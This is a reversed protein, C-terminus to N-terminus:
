EENNITNIAYETWKIENKLAWIGNEAILAYIKQKKNINKGQIISLENELFKLRSIMIEKYHILNEVINENDINISFFLQVLFQNRHNPLEIKSNLWIELDNNGNETISYIKKNPKDDQYIIQMEILGGEVLEKLTRYIQSQTSPWFHNITNDIKKQLDYGSLKTDNLFGLVAYKLSM